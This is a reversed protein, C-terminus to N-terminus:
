VAHLDHDPQGNRSMVSLPMSKPKFLIYTLDPHDERSRSSLLMTETKFLTYTEAKM